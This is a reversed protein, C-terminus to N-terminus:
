GRNDKAHPLEWALDLLYAEVLPAPDSMASGQLSFSPTPTLPQARPRAPVRRACLKNIYVSINDQAEVGNEIPLILSIQPRKRPFYNRYAEERKAVSRIM